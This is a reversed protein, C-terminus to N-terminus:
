FHYIGGFSFWEPDPRLWTLANLWNWIAVILMLTTLVSGGPARKRRFAIIAFIFAIIGSLFLVFINIIHSGQNM